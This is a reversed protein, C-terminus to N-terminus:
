VAGSGPAPRHASTSALRDAIELAWGVVDTEHQYAGFQVRALTEDLLHRSLELDHTEDLLYHFLLPEICARLELFAVEDGTLWIDM